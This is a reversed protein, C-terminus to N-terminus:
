HHVLAKLVGVSCIVWVIRIFVLWVWNEGQLPWLLFIASTNTSQHKYLIQLEVNLDHDRKSNKFESKM